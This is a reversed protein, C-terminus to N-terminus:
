FIVFVIMTNKKILKIVRSKVQGKCTIVTTTSFKVVESTGPITSINTDLAKFSRTTIHSGKNM